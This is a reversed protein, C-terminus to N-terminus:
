VGLSFPPDDTLDSCGEELIEPIHRLWPRDLSRKLVSVNPLLHCPTM